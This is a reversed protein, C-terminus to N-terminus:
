RKGYNPMFLFLEEICVPVVEVLPSLVDPTFSQRLIVPTVGTM